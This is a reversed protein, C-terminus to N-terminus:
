PCLLRSMRRAAVALAVTALAALFALHGVMSWSVVGTTFGRILEVGHYLPTIGVAVRLAVPYTDVPAFTGSFLFMAFIAVTMYDFDQWNRMFTSVAMGLAGFAFGVFLCAFLAPLTRLATTLDMGVMLGLFAIAYVTGRLLAWALEGLAIEFPRLPTAVMADYLKQWKLRGFFNFTSEALAGNMVSAALMAPAVFAAYGVTRGDGLQFDGVLEGVGFGISFLYLVPEFFGSVVVLWYGSNRTAMVDRMTVSSIRGLTGPTRRLLRPALFTTVM